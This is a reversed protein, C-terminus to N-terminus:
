DTTKLSGIILGRRGGPGRRWDSNRVAAPRLRPSPYKVVKACSRCVTAVEVRDADTVDLDANM